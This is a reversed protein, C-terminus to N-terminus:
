GSGTGRERWSARGIQSSKSEGSARWRWSAYSASQSLAGPTRSGGRSLSLWDRLSGPVPSTAHFALFLDDVYEIVSELVFQAGNVLIPQVVPHEVVPAVGLEGLLLALFRDFLHLM